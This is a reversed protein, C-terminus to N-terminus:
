ENWHLHEFIKMARPVFGEAYDEPYEITLQVQRGNAELLAVSGILTMDDTDTKRIGYEEFSGAFRQPADAAYPVIEFGGQRKLEQSYGIFKEKTMEEAPAFLHFVARPELTGGFNATAFFASGEGSSTSTPEMDEPVYTTFGLGEDKYRVLTIPEEQGELKVTETITEAEEAAANEGGDAPQEADPATEPATTEPATTGPARTEPAAEPEAAPANGCAMTLFVLLLVSCTRLM